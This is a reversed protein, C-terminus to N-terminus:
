NMNKCEPINYRHRASTGLYGQRWDEQPEGNGHKNKWDCTCEYEWPRSLSMVEALDIPLTCLAACRLFIGPNDYAELIQEILWLDELVTRRSRFKHKAGEGFNRPFCDLRYEISRFLM